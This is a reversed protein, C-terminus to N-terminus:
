RRRAAVAAQGQPLRGPRLEALEGDRRRHVGDAPPQGVGDAVHRAHAGLLLCYFDASDERDPIGTLLTLWIILAAFGLLFLRLFITFNDFVLLGSFCNPQRAAHRVNCPRSRDTSGATAAVAAPRRARLGSRDRDPRGLRPAATSARCCACCCCCCSPAACRDARALVGPWTAAAPRSQLRTQLREHTFM